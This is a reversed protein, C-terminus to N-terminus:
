AELQQSNEILQSDRLLRFHFKDVDKNGNEDNLNIKWLKMYTFILLM